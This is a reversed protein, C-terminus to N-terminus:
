IHEQLPTTSKPLLARLPKSLLKAIRVVSGMSAPLLSPEAASGANGPSILDVEAQGPAVVEVLLGAAELLRGRVAGPGGEHGCSQRRLYFSPSGSLKPIQPQM